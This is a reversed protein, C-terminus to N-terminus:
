LCSNHEEGFRSSQGHLSRRCCTFVAIGIKWRFSPKCPFTITIRKKTPRWFPWSQFSFRRPWTSQGFKPIYKIRWTQLCHNLANCTTTNGPLVHEDSKDDDHSPTSTDEQQYSSNSQGGQDSVDHDRSVKAEDESVWKNQLLLVVFIANLNCLVILFNAWLYASPYNATRM